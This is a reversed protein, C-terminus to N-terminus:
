HVGTRPSDVLQLAEVCTALDPRQIVSRLFLPLLDEDFNDKTKRKDGYAYGPQDAVVIEPLNGTAYYHFVFPQAIAWM